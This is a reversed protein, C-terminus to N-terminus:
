LNNDVMGTGKLHIIHSDVSLYIKHVMVRGMEIVKKLPCSSYAWKGIVYTLSLVGRFMFSGMEPSIYFFLLDFALFSYRQFYPFKLIIM